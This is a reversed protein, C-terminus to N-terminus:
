FKKGSIETLRADILAVVSARSFNRERARDISYLVQDILPTRVPNEIKSFCGLVGGKLCSNV